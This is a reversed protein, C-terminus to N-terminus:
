GTVRLQEASDANCVEYIGYGAGGIECSTYLKLRIKKMDPSPSIASVDVTHRDGLTAELSLAGINTLLDQTDSESLPLRSLLEFRLGQPSLKQEPSLSLERTVYVHETGLRCMSVPGGASFGVIGTMTEASAPGFEREASAFLSAYHNQASGKSQNNPM